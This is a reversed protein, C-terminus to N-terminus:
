IDVIKILVSMQMYQVYDTIPNVKALALDNQGIIHLLSIICSNAFCCAFQLVHVCVVVTVRACVSVRACMCVCLSCSCVHVCEHM